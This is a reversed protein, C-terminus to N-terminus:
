KCFDMYAQELGDMLGIKPTWGLSNLLSSDMFKRPSGDLKASDYAINGEYGVVHKIMLALQGITIDVNSGVNIHGQMPKTMAKYAEKSLSMVFACAAAMDDVHLFERRPTGTGWIVVEKDKAV